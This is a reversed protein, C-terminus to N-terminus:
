ALRRGESSSVRVPNEEPRRIVVLTMPSHASSRLAVRTIRPHPAPSRLLPRVWIGFSPTCNGACTTTAERSETDGRPCVESEARKRGTRRTVWLQASFRSYMLEFNELFRFILQACPRRTPTPFSGSTQLEKCVFVTSAQRVTKSFKLM